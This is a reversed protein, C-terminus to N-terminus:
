IEHALLRLFTGFSREIIMRSISQIASLIVGLIVVTSLMLKTRESDEVIM